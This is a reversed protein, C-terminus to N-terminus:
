LSLGDALNQEPGYKEQYARNLPLIKRYQGAINGASYLCKHILENLLTRVKENGKSSSADSGAEPDAHVHLGFPERQVPTSCTKVNTVGPSCSAYELVLLHLLLCLLLAWWRVVDYPLDREIDSDIILHM